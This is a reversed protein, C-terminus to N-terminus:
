EQNSDFCRNDLIWNLLIYNQFLVEVFLVNQDIDLLVSVSQCM